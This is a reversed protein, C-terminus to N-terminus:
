VNITHPSLGGLRRRNVLMADPNLVEKELLKGNLWAELQDAAIEVFEHFVAGVQWGVHPTLLVNPLTRLPSSPPLPEISFVDLGAGSLRKERLAEILAPEDVVAGRSTNILIAGPKMKWLKERNLLGRSEDSLRLHISVIDAEALLDDLPLRQVGFEDIEPSTGKRDWAIVRMGFAEALRAVPRGHRGYGLIGLTRGALSGGILQPWEGNKMATTLPYIQRVLGLMLGFALEPVVVMPKSVRRGLAVVIGKKSAAPQDLHYAHGGTQLVLELNSCAAFFQSDMVTRERLALLIQFNELLHYDALRLPRDLIKVEAFQRLRAMAPAAALEGEYDDMVLLRLKNM